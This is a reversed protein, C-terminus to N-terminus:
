MWSHQIRQHIAKLMSYAGREQVFTVLCANKPYVTSDLANNWQSRSGSTSYRDASSASSASDVLPPTALDNASALGIDLRFRVTKSVKNGQLDPNQNIIM